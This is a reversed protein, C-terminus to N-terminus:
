IQILIYQMRSGARYVVRSSSSNYLFLKSEYITAFCNFYFNYLMINLASFIKTLLIDMELLM